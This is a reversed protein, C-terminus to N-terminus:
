WPRRGAHNGSFGPQHARGGFVVFDLNGDGDFDGTAELGYNGSALVGPGGFTGDGKGSLMAIAGGPGVPHCVEFECNYAQPSASVLDIDGDHNFDGPRLTASWPAQESLRRDLRSPEM